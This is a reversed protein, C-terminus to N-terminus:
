GELNKGTSLLSSRPVITYQQNFSSWILTLLIGTLIIILLIQFLSWKKTPIISDLQPKTYQQIESEKNEFQTVTPQPEPNVTVMM